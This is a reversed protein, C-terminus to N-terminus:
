NIKDNLIEEKQFTMVFSLIKAVPEFLIEPILEGLKMPYLAQMLNSDEVVPVDNNKAIDIINEAVLGSGKGIVQPALTQNPEYKLVVAQKRQSTM